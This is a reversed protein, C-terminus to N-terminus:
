APTLATAEVSEIHVGDAGEILVILTGDIELTAGEQTLTLEDALVVGDLFDTFLAAYREARSQIM